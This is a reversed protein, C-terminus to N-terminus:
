NKKSDHSKLVVVGGALAWGGLHICHCDSSPGNLVQGGNHLPVESLLAQGERTKRVKM